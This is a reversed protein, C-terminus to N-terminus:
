NDASAYDGELLELEISIRRGRLPSIKVVSVPRKAAKTVACIIASCLPCGVQSCLSRAVKSQMQCLEESILPGVEVRVSRSMFIVRVDEAIELAEVMGTRLGNELEDLRVNYFDIGSEQEMLTALSSGPPILLLGSQHPDQGNVVFLGSNELSKLFMSSSDPNRILPLFARPQHSEEKTPLYVAKSDVGLEELLSNLNVLSSLCSASVMQPSVTKETPIYILLLGILFSALGLGAFLNAQILVSVTSLSLGFLVFAIGLRM